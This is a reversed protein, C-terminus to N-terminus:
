KEEKNAIEVMKLQTVEALKKGLLEAIQAPMQAPIEVM